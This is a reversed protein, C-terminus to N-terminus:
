IWWKDWKRRPGEGRTAIDWVVLERIFSLLGKRQIENELIANYRDNSAVLNPICENRLPEPDHYRTYLLRCPELRFSTQRAANLMRMFKEVNGCYCFEKYGLIMTALTSIYDGTSSVCGVLEVEGRMNLAQVPPILVLIWNSLHRSLEWVSPSPPRDNLDRNKLTEFFIWDMEDTSNLLLTKNQDALDQLCERMTILGQLVIDEHLSKLSRQKRSIDALTAEDPRLLGDSM